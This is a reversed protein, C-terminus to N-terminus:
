GFLSDRDTTNNDLSVIETLIRMWKIKVIRFNRSLSCHDWVIISKGSYLLTLPKKIGVTCGQCRCITCVSCPSNIDLIGYYWGFAKLQWARGDVTPNRGVKHSFLQLSSPMIKDKCNKYGSFTSM